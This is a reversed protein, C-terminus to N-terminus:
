VDAEEEGWPGDLVEGTSPDVQFHSSREREDEAQMRRKKQLATRCQATLREMHGIFREDVVETPMIIAQLLMGVKAAIYVGGDTMHREHLTLYGADDLPALYKEQIFTIGESTQLPLFTRGGYGVHLKPEELQHETQDTDGFYINGPADGRRMVLKERRKDSIDFMTCINEIDMCPLGDILYAASGDGLWQSEVIGECTQDFLQFIGSQSCLAAVKKLKM